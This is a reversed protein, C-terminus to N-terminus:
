SKYNIIQFDASYMPLKEESKMATLEPGLKNQLITM